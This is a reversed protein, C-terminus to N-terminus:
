KGDISFEATTSSSNSSKGRCKSNFVPLSKTPACKWQILTHQFQLTWAVSAHFLLEKLLACVSSAPQTLALWAQEKGGETIYPTINPLGSSSNKLIHSAKKPSSPLATGRPNVPLEGAELPHQLPGSHEKRGLAWWKCNLVELTVRAPKVGGDWFNCYYVQLTSLKHGSLAFSAVQPLCRIKNPASPAQQEFLCKEM